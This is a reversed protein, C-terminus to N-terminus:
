GPPWRLRRGGLLHAHIHLVSQGAGVGTNLIVRYGTRAVGLTEALQRACQLMKGLVRTDVESAEALSTIHKRPIILVHTPAQPNVDHFALVDDDSHVIRAQAEGRVIRCFVCM